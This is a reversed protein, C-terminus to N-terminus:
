SYYLFIKLSFDASFYCYEAQGSFFMRIDLTLLRNSPCTIPEQLLTIQIYENHTRGCLEFKTLKSARSKWGTVPNKYITLM